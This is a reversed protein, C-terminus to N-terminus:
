NRNAAELMDIIEQNRNPNHHSNAWFLPSRDFYDRADPNANKSLLYAAMVKDGNFVARHLTSWGVHNREDIDVDGTEFILRAIALSSNHVAGHFATKGLFREIEPSTVDVGQAMLQQVAEVDSNRVAEAFQRYPNFQQAYASTYLLLSLFCVLFKM